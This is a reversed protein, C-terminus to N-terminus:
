GQNADAHISNPLQREVDSGTTEIQKRYTHQICEVYVTRERQTKVDCRAFTLALPM